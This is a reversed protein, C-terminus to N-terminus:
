QNNLVTRQAPQGVELRASVKELVATLTEIHKSQQAVAAKLEEVMRHEKLFENLLMANVQEYRVSYPNGENDRVVLDPNVKEVDEAVLGFQQVGAEDIDRNYRFTVPKLSFLAESAKDMAKIQEKFRRSSTVTGLKGSSNILVAAGGSSTEGFISGIYCSNSVNAGDVSAGICIVNSATTVGLGASDGMAVNSSGSINNGLAEFGIANNYVGVTNSGLADFGVANNSNGDVNSFLAGAGVATNMGAQGLASSDNNALAVDGIATNGAAIINSLLASEGLANNSSGTTNFFLSNAGVANNFAGTGSNPDGQNSFLAGSGVATNNPGTNSSLADAGVATNNEATTNSFLAQFGTATNFGGTNSVLAQDGVATNEPSTSVVGSSPIDASGLQGSAPDVLVMQNPTAPTMATIGAIFTAAHIALDGIRITNSEGAIGVNGIDINNDGATLFFGAQYGIAINGTGITNNFLAFAGGATNSSGTSNNLLAGAGTATNNAGTNTLLTGAGLGTNFAAGTNSSLSFFGVATNYAGSSLNLLANQGEATNGGPYGGDPPPTVAQATPLSGFCNLVLLPILVLSAINTKM